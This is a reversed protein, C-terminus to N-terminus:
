VVALLFSTALLPSALMRLVALAACFELPPCPVTCCSALVCVVTAFVGTVALVVAVISLVTWFLRYPRLFFFAMGTPLLAAIGFVALFLLLDGFAWKSGIDPAPHRYSRTPLFYASNKRIMARVIAM